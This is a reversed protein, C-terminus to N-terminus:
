EGVLELEREVARRGHGISTLYRRGLGGVTVLHAWRKETVIADCYPIAVSLAWIDTWDHQEWPLNLDRHKLFRLTSWVDASPISRVLGRIAEASEPGWNGTRLAEPPLVRRERCVAEVYERVSEFEEAVVMDQHLRRHQPHSRLWDRVRLEHDLQQSGSRHEPTRDFGLEEPIAEKFGFLQFWEWGPHERVQEWDPLPEVAPGEPVTGDPSAVSEVFRFRGDPRGFAHAAGHGLLDRGTPMATSSDVWTGVLGRAELQRVVHPSPITAYGTIDRMLEAVQRRSALDRRHWLELYHAPSLPVVIRRAQAAHTLQDRVQSWVPDSGACGRSMDVWINMDLYLIRPSSSQDGGASEGSAM